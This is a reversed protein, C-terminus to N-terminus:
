CNNSHINEVKDLQSNMITSDGTISKFFVWTRAHAASKDSEAHICMWGYSQHIDHVPLKPHGSKPTTVPSDPKYFCEPRRWNSQNCEIHWPMEVNAQLM